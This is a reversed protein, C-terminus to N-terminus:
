EDLQPKGNIYSVKQVLNGDGDYITVTGKGDLVESTPFKEGKPYYEGRVLKEQEYEEILMLTGDRYWATSHGNRKNNSMEKQSEQTGTDYWTKVTGQIKDDFWNVSLKPLLKKQLHPANHFYIEEGYKANNKMHYIKVVRGYTDFVKIEGDLKGFNYEQLESIAEKGFIARLGRGEDVKSICEGEQSYYRGSVLLGEKFIEEAAPKGNCWFRKSPGEKLGCRYQTTQLISGDELYIEYIGHIKGECYPITKWVQGNAHYYTSIGELKGKEYLITAEIAGTEKWVQCCEDFVWSKESGAVIDGTGEIVKAEIKQIGNQYWEKYTGCARGNVIELYQDPYGNPHYSTICSPINGDCDRTYVRLVKQYSQPKLFDVSAYQDLREPTNITETLGNRDIINISSLQPPPAVYVTQTQYHSCATTIVLLIAIALYIHPKTQRKYHM